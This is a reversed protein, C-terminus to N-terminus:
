LTLSLFQLNKLFFLLSIWVFNGGAVNTNQIVRGGAGSKAHIYISESLPFFDYNLSFWLVNHTTFNSDLLTWHITCCWPNKDCYWLTNAPSAIGDVCKSDWDRDQIRWALCCLKAGWYRPGRVTAHLHWLSVGVRVTFFNRSAELNELEGKKKIWPFFDTSFNGNMSIWYRALTGGQYVISWQPTRPFNFALSLWPISLM